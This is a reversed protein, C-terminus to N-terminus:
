PGDPLACRFGVNNFPTEPPRHHRATARVSALDREWWSGGRMVKEAGSSPGRPNTPAPEGQYAAPDYWDQVWEWVNGALDHVGYPSAGAPYRGVDIPHPKIVQAPVEGAVANGWPYTRGDTGRAAKEWEAETPLRKGAWRCYEVADTWTVGVVPQNPGIFRPDRKMSPARYGVADRFAKYRANTVEFQDIWFTGVTVVRQPKEAPEASRDAADAGMLFPGGPIRVMGAGDRGLPKVAPPSTATSPPPLAAQRVPQIDIVTETKGQPAIRVDDQWDRYGPKRGVLRYTGPALNAVIMVRNAATEGLRTEDLWVEVGDVRASIALSGLQPRVEETVEMKPTPPPPPVAAVKTAAKTFVFQGDGKLNGFQPVQRRDSEAYVKDTVWVGLESLSVWGKAGFAAGSLGRLLVSTFVGHGDREQAQDEQRGATIIQIAKKKVMEELLDDGIARNSIGYGSYCADMIYLIHKAPIRDSLRGLDAMSIATSFLKGPDGDAPILYGEEEGSVRRDTKGHGAFFILVRDDAGVKSRLDDGLVEEITKKTARADLLTVIRDRRFGQALLAAEVARADNVAYRLKPVKANQYDNIGIIVAWSEAYFGKVAAGPRPTAGIDRQAAANGAALVLGCAFAAVVARILTRRGTVRSEGM